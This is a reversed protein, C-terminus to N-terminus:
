SMTRVLWSPRGLKSAVRADYTLWKSRTTQALAAYAADHGTLGVRLLPAMADVLAPTLPVRRLPLNMLWRMRRPALRDAARTKRSTVALVEYCFLEPVFFPGDGRLVARAVDLAAPTEPEIVFWKVAVSADLVYV